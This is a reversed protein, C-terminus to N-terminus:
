QIEGLRNWRSGSMGYLMLFIEFVSSRMQDCFFLSGLFDEDAFFPSQNRQRASLRPIRHSYIRQWRDGRRLAVRVVRHRLTGRRWRAWSQPREQEEVAAESSWARELVSRLSWSHQLFCTDTWLCWTFLEITELVATFIHFARNNSPFWTDIEFFICLSYTFTCRMIRFSWHWTM